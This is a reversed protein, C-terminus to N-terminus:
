AGKKFLAEYLDPASTRCYQEFGDKDGMNKTESGLDFSPQINFSIGEKKRFKQFESFSMANIEDARDKYKPSSVIQKRLFDLGASYVLEGKDNYLPYLWIAKGAYDRVNATTLYQKLCLLYYELGEKKASQIASTFEGGCYGREGIHPYGVGFCNLHKFFDDFQDDLTRVFSPILNYNISIETGVMKFHCGQYLHTAVKVLFPYKAFVSAPFVKGCLESPTIALPKIKLRLCDGEVIAEDILNLHELEKLTITKAPEDEGKSLHEINENVAKLEGVAEKQRKSFAKYTELKDLYYLISKEDEMLAHVAMRALKGEKSKLPRDIRLFKVKINPVAKKLALAVERSLRSRGRIGYAGRIKIIIYVESVGSDVVNKIIEERETEVGCVAVLKGAGKFCGMMYAISEDVRLSDKKTLLYNDGIRLKLM